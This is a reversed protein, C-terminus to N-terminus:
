RFPVEQTFGTRQQERAAEHAGLREQVHVCTVAWLLFSLLLGAAISTWIRRTSM